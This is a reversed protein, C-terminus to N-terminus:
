RWVGTGCSSVLAETARGGPRTTPSRHLTQRAAIADAVLAEEVRHLEDLERKFAHAACAAAEVSSRSRGGNVRPVGTTSCAQEPHPKSAASPSFRASIAELIAALKSFDSFCQGGLRATLFGEAAARPPDAASSPASKGIGRQCQRCRRRPPVDGACVSLRRTDAAPM